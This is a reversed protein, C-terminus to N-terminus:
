TKQSKYKQRKYVTMLFIYGSFFGHALNFAAMKKNYSIFLSYISTNLLCATWVGWMWLSLDKLPGKALTVKLVQPLYFVLVITGSHWTLM